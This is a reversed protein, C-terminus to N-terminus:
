CIMGALSFLKNLQGLVLQKYEMLALELHEVSKVEVVLSSEFNHHVIAGRDLSSGLKVRLRTLRHIERALDTKSDDLHSVSGVIM